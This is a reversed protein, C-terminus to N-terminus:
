KKAAWRFTKTSLGLLAFILILSILIPQWVATYDYGRTYNSHNYIAEFSDMPANGYAGYLFVYVPHKFPIFYTIYRTVDSKIIMAPSLLIGAMFVSIFFVGVVLGQVLGDNSTIGGIFTSLAISVLSILIIGFIIYGWGMSKFSSLYEQGGLPLSILFLLVLGSLSIIFYFFWLSLIFAIKSIGSNEIRKLFVSNKWEVISSSLLILMTTLPLLTYSLLNVQKILLNIEDNGPVFVISNFIFKFMVLFIIPLIYTFLFGKPTKIFSKNLIYLVAAFSNTTAKFDIKKM